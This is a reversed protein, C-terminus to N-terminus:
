LDIKCKYVGKLMDLSTTTPILLSSDVKIDPTDEIACFTADVLDAKHLKKILDIESHADHFEGKGDKNTFQKNLVSDKQLGFGVLFPKIKTNICAAISGIGCRLQKNIHHEIGHKRLTHNMLETNNGEFYQFKVTKLKLYEYFSKLHETTIEYEEQYISVWTDLSSRKVYEDHIHINLIQYDSNRKGYNNDPLLMNHRVIIDFSDVLKDFNRNEYKRSGCIIFNM